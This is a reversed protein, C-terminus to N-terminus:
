KKGYKIWQGEATIYPNQYGRQLQTTRVLSEKRGRRERLHTQEPADEAALHLLLHVMVLHVAHEGQLGSEASGIGM